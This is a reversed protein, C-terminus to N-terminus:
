RPWIGSGMSVPQQSNLSGCTRGNDSAQHTSSPTIFRLVTCLHHIRLCSSSFIISCPRQSLTRSTTTTCAVCHSRYQHHHRTLRRWHLHVTAFESLATHLTAWPLSIQGRPTDQARYMRWDSCRCLSHRGTVILKYRRQQLGPSPVSVIGTYM